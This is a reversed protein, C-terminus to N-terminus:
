SMQHDSTSIKGINPSIDGKNELDYLEEVNICVLRICQECMNSCKLGSKPCTCATTCGKKLLLFSSQTAVQDKIM